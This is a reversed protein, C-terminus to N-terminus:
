STLPQGDSWKLNPKLTLTVTRDNNSTTWSQLVQSAAQNSSNIYLIPTAIASLVETKGQETATFPNLDSMEESATVYLISRSSTSSTSKSQSSSSCAALPLGVAVLVAMWRLCARSRMYQEQETIGSRSKHWERRM